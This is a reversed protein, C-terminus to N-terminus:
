LAFTHSTCHAETDQPRGDCVMVEVVTPDTTTYRLGDPIFGNSDLVGSFLTEKAPTKLRMVVYADRAGAVRIRLHDGEILKLSGPPADEYVSQGNRVVTVLVESSGKVTPPGAELRQTSSTNLAFLVMCAMVSSAAALSWRPLHWAPQSKKTMFDPIPSRKHQEADARLMAFDNQCAVCTAVHAEQANSLTRENCHAAM